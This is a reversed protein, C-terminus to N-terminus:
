SGEGFDLIDGGVGGRWSDGRGGTCSRGGVGELAGGGELEARAVELFCVVDVGPVCPVVDVRGSVRDEDLVRLLLIRKLALMGGARPIPLPEVPLRLFPPISEIRIM